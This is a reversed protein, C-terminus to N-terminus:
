FAVKTMESGHDMTPILYNLGLILLHDHISFLPILSVRLL